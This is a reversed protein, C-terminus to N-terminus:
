GPSDYGIVSVGRGKSTMLLLLRAAAAGAHRSIFASLQEVTTGSRPDRKRRRGDGRGGCVDGAGKGGCGQDLGGHRPDPVVDAAEVDLDEPLRVHVLRLLLLQEPPQERVLLGHQRPELRELPSDLAERRPPQLSSTWGHPQKSSSRPPRPSVSLENNLPHPM